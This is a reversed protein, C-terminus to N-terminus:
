AAPTINVTSISSLNLYYGYGDADTVLTSNTMFASYEQQARDFEDVWLTGMLPNISEYTITYGDENVMPAPIEVEDSYINIGFKNNKYRAVVYNNSFTGYNFKWRTAFIFQDPIEHFVQSATSLLMEETLFSDVAVAPVAAAIQDYGTLSIIEGSPKALVNFSQGILDYYVQSEEVKISEDTTDIQVTRESPDEYYDAYIEKYTLKASVNGDELITIVMDYTYRTTLFYGAFSSDENGLGDNYDYRQTDTCVMTYSGNKFVPAPMGEGLSEPDETVLVVKLEDTGSVVNEGKTSTVWDVDNGCATMTLLMTALLLAAVIARLIRKKM